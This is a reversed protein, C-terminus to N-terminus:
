DSKKLRKRNNEFLKDITKFISQCANNQKNEALSFPLVTLTLYEDFKFSLEEKFNKWEPYILVVNKVGYKKGYAFLQYMDSQNIGKKPDLKGSEYTVQEDLLKWKTDLVCVPQKNETIVLDPKMMFVGKGNNNEVLPKQPKQQTLKFRKSFHVNLKKAVYKEFLSEMPFLFSFGKNKGRLTFPNQQHLILTLLPLCKQYHSMGRYQKSFQWLKFDNEFSKSYPVEGFFSRLERIIKQNHECKSWRQVQILASHILRNEARNASYDDYEVYFLHKKTIPQNLQKGIQLCGKLFREIEEVRYYDSRIGRSVIHRVEKLFRYILMEHLPQKEVRLTAKSTELFQLNYVTKLMRWLVLRSEKLGDEDLQQESIKPLIEIQTGDSTAIVGVFNKIRLTTANKFDIYQYKTAENSAYIALENWAVKSIAITNGKIDSGVATGSYIVHGWERLYLNSSV